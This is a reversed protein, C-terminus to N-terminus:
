NLILFILHSISLMFLFLINKNVKFKPIPLDMPEILYNRKKKSVTFLLRPDTNGGIQIPLINTDDNDDEDANDNPQKIVNLPVVKTIPNMPNTTSIMMM